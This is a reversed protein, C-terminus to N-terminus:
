DLLEKVVMQLIPTTILAEKFFFLLLLLLAYFGTMALFAWGYTGFVSALFFAAAISLFLFTMFGLLAMVAVTVLTSVAKSTRKVLELKYYDVQQEAYIKAYEVTEGTVNLLNETDM